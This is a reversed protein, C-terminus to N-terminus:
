GHLTFHHEHLFIEVEENYSKKRHHEEQNRIYRRVADLGSESVSVAYYEAAWEFRGPIVEEHNMWHASEGKILQITRAITMEANLGLLCHLHDSSGNLTDIHIQKQAANQRIHNLLLPLVTKTLTHERNKTGWVAHVWLRVYSM